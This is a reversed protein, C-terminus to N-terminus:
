PEEFTGIRWVTGEHFSSPLALLGQGVIIFFIWLLLLGGLGQLFLVLPAFNRPAKEEPKILAGHCSSCVVRGDLETVCERCFFRSCELCRAAAERQGHNFCRERSLGAIM